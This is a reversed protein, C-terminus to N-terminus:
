AYPLCNSIFQFSLRLFAINVDHQLLPRIPAGMLRLTFMTGNLESLQPVIDTDYGSAERLFKTRLLATCTCTSVVHVTMDSVRVDCHQCICSDDKYNRCWTKAIDHMIHRHVTRNCIKYVISPSITPQLVRFYAFDSDTMVRTNWKEADHSYVLQKITRKWM